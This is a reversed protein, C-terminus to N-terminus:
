RNIEYGVKLQMKKSRENFDFYGNILENAGLIDFAFKARATWIEIGYGKGQFKRHLWIGGRFNGNEDITINTGGITKNDETREIAFYYREDGNHSHKEVFEIADNKAYPFPVTLNKAVEVDNLGDVLFDVDNKTQERFM